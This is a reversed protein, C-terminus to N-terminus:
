HRVGDHQSFRAASHEPEQDSARCRENQDALPRHIIRIQQEGHRDAIIKGPGGYPLSEIGAKSFFALAIIGSLAAKIEPISTELDHEALGNKTQARVLERDICALKTVGFAFRGMRQPHFQSRLIANRPETE